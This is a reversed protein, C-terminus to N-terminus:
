YIIFEKMLIELSTSFFQPQPCTSTMLAKDRMAKEQTKYFNMAWYESNSQHFYLNASYAM